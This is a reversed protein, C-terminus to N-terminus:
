VHRQDAGATLLRAVVFGLAAAAGIAVAPSRRVLERADELLEDVDKADLSSSLQSVKDAASRAYQGYQSGVKEDVQAAADNLAESLQTLAGTAKAKGDLAFSRAKDAAEDRVKGTTDKLAQRAASVKDDAAATAEDALGGTAGKAPTDVHFDARPTTAMADRDFTDSM